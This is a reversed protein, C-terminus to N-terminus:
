VEKGFYEPAAETKLRDREIFIGFFAGFLFIAFSFVILLFINFANNKM